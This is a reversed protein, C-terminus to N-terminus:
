DNSNYTGERKAVDVGMSILAMQIQASRLVCVM